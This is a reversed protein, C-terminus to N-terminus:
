SLDLARLEEQGRHHDGGKNGMVQWLAPPEVPHAEAAGECSHVLTYKSVLVHRSHKGGANKSRVRANLHQHTIDDGDMSSAGDTRRVVCALFLGGRTAALPSSSITLM